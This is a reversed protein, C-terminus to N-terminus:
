CALVVPAPLAPALSSKSERTSAPISQAAQM